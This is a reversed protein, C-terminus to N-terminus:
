SIIEGVLLPVSTDHTYYLVQTYYFSARIWIIALVSHVAVLAALADHSTDMGLRLLRRTCFGGWSSLRRHHFLFYSISFVFVIYSVYSVGLIDYWYWTMGHLVAATSQISYWIIGHSNDTCYESKTMTSRVTTGTTHVRTSITDYSIIRAHPSRDIRVLVFHGIYKQRSRSFLRRQPFRAFSSCVTVNESAAITSQLRVRFRYRVLASCTRYVAAIM